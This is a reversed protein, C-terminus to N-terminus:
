FRWSCRESVAAAVENIGTIDFTARVPNDGYPTTEVILRTSDRLSRVLPIGRGRWLGTADHSTSVQWQATVPQQEDIRYRVTHQNYIGGTTIYRRWNVYIMTENDRCEVLLIPNIPGRSFRDRITNEALVSARINQFDTMEDRAEAMFWNGPEAAAPLAMFLAALLLLARFLKM